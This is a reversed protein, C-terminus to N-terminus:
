NVQAAEAQYIYTGQGTRQDAEWAGVFRDGNPFYLTGQGHRKDDM